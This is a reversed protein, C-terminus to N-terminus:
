MRYFLGTEDVNFVDKLDYDKIIDAAQQRGDRILQPNIGASEGSIKHCIISHRNKFRQLWGNSYIFDVVGLDDSFKQAKEKLISDTVPINNARANSFWLYLAREM